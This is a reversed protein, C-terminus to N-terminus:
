RAIHMGVEELGSVVQRLTLLWRVLVSKRM